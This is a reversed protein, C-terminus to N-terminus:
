NPTMSTRSSQLMPAMLKMLQTVVMLFFRFKELDNEVKEKELAYKTQHCKPQHNFIAEINEQDTLMAITINLYGSDLHCVWEQRRAVYTNFRMHAPKDNNQLQHILMDRLNKVKAIKELYAKQAEKFTINTRTVVPFKDLITPWKTAVAGQLYQGFLNHLRQPHDTTIPDLHAVIKKRFEEITYILSYESMFIGKDPVVSVTLMQTGETQNSDLQDWSVKITDPQKMGADQMQEGIDSLKLWVYYWGFPPKKQAWLLYSM